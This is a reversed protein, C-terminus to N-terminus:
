LIYKLVNTYAVQIGELQHTNYDYSPSSPHQTRRKQSGRVIEERGLFYRIPNPVYFEYCRLFVM